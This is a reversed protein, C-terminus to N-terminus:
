DRREGGLTRDAELAESVATGFGRGLEIVVDRPLPNDPRPPTFLKGAARLRRRLDRQRETREDSSM